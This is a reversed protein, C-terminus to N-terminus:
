RGTFASVELILFAEAAFEFRRHVDERFDRTELSLTQQDTERGLRVLKEFVGSLFQALLVAVQDHRVRNSICCGAGTEIGLLVLADQERGGSLRDLQGSAGLPLHGLPNKIM